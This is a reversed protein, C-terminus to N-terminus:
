RAAVSTRAPQAALTAGVVRVAAAAIRVVSRGPARRWVTRGAGIRLASPGRIVSPRHLVVDPTATDPLPLDAEALLALLRARRRRLVAARVAWAPCAATRTVAAPLARSGRAPSHQRPHVAGAVNAAGTVIEEM